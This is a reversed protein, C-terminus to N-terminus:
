CASVNVSFAGHELPQALCKVQMWDHIRRPLEKLSLRNNDGNWVHPFQPRPFPLFRGFDYWSDATSSVGCGLGREM